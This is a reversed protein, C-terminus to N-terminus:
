QIAENVLNSILTIEEVTLKDHNPVYLGQDHVRHSFTLDLKQKYNMKKYFPQKDISGCIIPRHEIDNLKLLNSIQDRKPDIIPYAFNSIIDNPYFKPNPKWRSKIKEQYLKFNAHRNSIITELKNLQRLGLFAQLDTSRLNFAPHYFTYMSNFETVNHLKKLDDADNKDLDRDWGHSRLMLLLDRINKDDTCIMGGEITSIHHGFFMSFTSMLGFTGAKKGKFTTGLTECSDELIICDHKKALINLINMDGLFGLVNVLFIAAPKERILLEELKYSDICLTNPEVDCLIPTLGFQMLPAITTSWCISPVVIKKNKLKKGEILSYIMMLNASSGSNVYISYKRGMWASWKNEFEVTLAGKTLRPSGKLWDSLANLDTQDITNSILKIM